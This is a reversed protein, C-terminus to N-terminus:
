LPTYGWFYKEVILRHLEDLSLEPHTKNLSVLDLLADHTNMGRTKDSDYSRYPYSPLPSQSNEWQAWQWRTKAVVKGQIKLEIIETAYELTGEPLCGKEAARPLSSERYDIMALDREWGPCSRTSAAATRFGSKIKNIFSM